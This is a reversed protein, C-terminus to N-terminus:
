CEDANDGAGWYCMLADPRGYSHILFEYRIDESFRCTAGHSFGDSTIQSFYYTLDGGFLGPKSIRAIHWNNPNPRLVGKGYWHSNVNQSYKSYRKVLRRCFSEKQANVTIGDLPDRSNQMRDNNLLYLLLFSAVAILLIRKWYIKLISKLEEWDFSIIRTWTKRVLNECDAFYSDIKNSQGTPETFLPSKCHACIPKGMKNPDGDLPLANKKGCNPCKRIM